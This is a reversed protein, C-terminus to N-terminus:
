GHKIWNVQNVAESAMGLRRGLACLAKALKPGHWPETSIVAVKIGSSKVWRAYERLLKGGEGGDKCFFMMVTSQYGDAWFLPATEAAVCGVIRGDIESVWCFSNDDVIVEYASQEIRDRSPEVGPWGRQSAAEIALAAIQGIDFVTAERIM